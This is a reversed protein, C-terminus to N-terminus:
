SFINRKKTHWMCAHKSSRLTSVKGFIASVQIVNWSLEMAHMAKSWISISLICCYSSNCSVKDNQSQLTSMCMAHMGTRKITASRKQSVIGFQKLVTSQLFAFHIYMKHLIWITTYHLEIEQFVFFTCYTLSSTSIWFLIAFPCNKCQNCGKLPNRQKAASMEIVSLGALGEVSRQALIYFLDKFRTGLTLTVSKAEARSAIKPEFRARQM